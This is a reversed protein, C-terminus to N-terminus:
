NALEAILKANAKAMVALANDAASKHFDASTAARIQHRQGDWEVDMQVVFPPRGSTLESPDFWGEPTQEQSCRPQATTGQAALAGAIPGALAGAVLMSAGKSGNNLYVNYHDVTLQHGQARAGLGALVDM